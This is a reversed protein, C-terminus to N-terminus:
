CCTLSSALVAYLLGTEEEKDTSNPDAGKALLANVVKSRGYQCAKHICCKFETIEHYNLLEYCGYKEILGVADAECETGKTEEFRVVGWILSYFIEGQLQKFGLRKNPDDDLCIEIAEYM